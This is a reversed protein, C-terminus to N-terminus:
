KCLLRLQNIDSTFDYYKADKLMEQLKQAHCNRIRKGSDCPCTQHGRYQHKQVYELFRIISNISDLQLIQRYSEWIGRAGHAREGYPLKHYIKKFQYAYLFPILLNDVFFLLTPEKRFLKEMEYPAALCFSGDPNTHFFQSVSNNMGYTKPISIPYDKKIKIIVQHDIDIEVGYFIATAKITGFIKWETKEDSFRLDKYRELLEKVQAFFPNEALVDM